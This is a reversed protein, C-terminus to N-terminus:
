DQAFKGLDKLDRKLTTEWKTRALTNAGESTENDYRQCQAEAENYLAKLESEIKAGSRVSPGKYDQITQRMKRAYLEMIDFHAQERYLESDTHKRPNAYSKARNLLTVVEVNPKVKLPDLRYIRYDLMIAAKAGALSDESKRSKFDSWTLRHGSSWALTDAGYQFESLSPNPMILSSLLLTIGIIITAAGM